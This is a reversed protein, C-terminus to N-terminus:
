HLELLVSLVKPDPLDQSDGIEQIAPHDLRGLLELQEPDVKSDLSVQFDRVEVQAPSVLSAASARHAPLVQLRDVDDINRSHPFLLYTIPRCLYYSVLSVVLVSMYMVVVFLSSWM